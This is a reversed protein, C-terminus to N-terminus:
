ALKRTLEKWAEQLSRYAEAWLQVRWQNAVVWGLDGGDESNGVEVGYLGKNGVELYCRLHENLLKPFNEKPASFSADCM